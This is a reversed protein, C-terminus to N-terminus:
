VDLVYETQKALQELAAKLVAPAETPDAIGVELLKRLPTAAEITSKELSVAEPLLISDAAARNFTLMKQLLDSALATQQFM